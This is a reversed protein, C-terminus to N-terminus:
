QDLGLRQAKFRSMKPKAPAPRTDHVVEPPHADPAAPGTGHVPGSPLEIRTYGSGADERDECTGVLTVGATDALVKEAAAAAGDFRGAALRMYRKRAYAQSIERAHMEEDAADQTVAEGGDTDREVVASRLPQSGAAEAAALPKRPRSPEPGTGASPGSMAGLLGAVSDVDARGKDRSPPGFRVSKKPSKAGQRQGIPTPLKLISTPPRGAGDADSDSSGGDDDDNYDDDDDDRAANARDEDSHADRDSDASGSGSDDDDDSQSREGEDSDDDDDDDEIQDLLEMARRQEPTLLSRDVDSGDRLSAIMRLRKEELLAATAADPEDPGPGGGAFAPAQGDALEEKIDIFKEGDENVMNGGLMQRAADPTTTATTAAAEPGTTQPLRKAAALEATVAAIKADVYEERRRAIDAAQRASREVFWDDGLLVLIENTNILKGPFFALPGVPVMAEYEIEAPLDALTQQLERYESKYGRYQELTEELSATHQQGLREM